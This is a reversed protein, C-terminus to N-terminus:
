LLVLLCLSLSLSLPLLLPPPLPPPTSLLSSLSRYADVDLRVVTQRRKARGAVFDDRSPADEIKALLDGNGEAVSTSVHGDKVLFAFHFLNEVTQSFGRKEDRNTLFALLPIPEGGNKEVAEKLRNAMDQVRAGTEEDAKDTTDTVVEPVVTKVAARHRVVKEREKVVKVKMEMPGYM